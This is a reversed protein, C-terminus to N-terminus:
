SDTSHNDVKLTDPDVPGASSFVVVLWGVLWQGVFFSM